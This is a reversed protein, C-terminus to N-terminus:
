WTENPFLKKIRFIKIQESKSKIAYLQGTGEPPLLTPYLENVEPPERERGRSSSQQIMFKKRHM